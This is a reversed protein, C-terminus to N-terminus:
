LQNQKKTHIHFITIYYFRVSTVQVGRTQTKERIYKYFFVYAVNNPAISRVSIFFFSVSYNLMSVSLINRM